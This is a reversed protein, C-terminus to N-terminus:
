SSQDMKFTLRKQYDLAHHIFEQKVEISAAM